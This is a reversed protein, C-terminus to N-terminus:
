NEKKTKTKVNKRSRSEKMIKEFNRQLVRDAEKFMEHLKPDHNTSSEKFVPTKNIKISQAPNHITEEKQQKFYAKIAKKINLSTVTNGEFEDIITNIAKIDDLIM